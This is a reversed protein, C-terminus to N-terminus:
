APQWSPLSTRIRLLLTGGEKENSYITSASPEYEARHTLLFFFLSGGESEVSYIRKEPVFLLSGGESDVSYFRKVLFLSGGESDVPRRNQGDYNSATTDRLQRTNAIPTQRPIERHYREFAASPLDATGLGWSTSIHALTTNGFFPALFLSGGEALFLSGGESEVSYIRKEPVTM